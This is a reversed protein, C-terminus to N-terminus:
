QQKNLEAEVRAIEQIIIDEVKQRMEMGILQLKKLVERSPEGHLEIPVGGAYTDSSLYIESTCVAGRLLFKLYGKERKLENIQDQTM